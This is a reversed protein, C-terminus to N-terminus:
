QRIMSVTVVLNVIENPTATLDVCLRNGALINLNELTTTLTGTNVTNATGTGDIVASLLDDGSGCAETSQLREPDIDMNGTSEATSWMAEVEVVRYNDNAIFFVTDLADGATGGQEWSATIVETLPYSVWLGGVCNWKTNSAPHFTPLATINAATCSGYQPQNLFYSPPDFYVLADDPHAVARTGQQGRNVTIITSDTTSISRVTMAEGGTFIVDGAAMNTSSDIRISNADDTIAGNLNTSNLTAQAFVSAPALALVLGALTLIRKM